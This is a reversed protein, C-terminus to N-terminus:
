SVPHKRYDKGPSHIRQMCWIAALGSMDTPSRRERSGIEERRVGDPRAWQGLPSKTAEAGLEVLMGTRRGCRFCVAAQGNAAMKGTSFPGSASCPAFIGSAFGYPRRSTKTRGYVLSMFESSTEFAVDPAPRM